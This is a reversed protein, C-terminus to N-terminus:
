SCFYKLVPLKGFKKAIFLPILFGLLTIAFIVEPLPRILKVPLYTVNTILDYVAFVIVLHATMVFLSKQGCYKMLEFIKGGVNSMFVSFKMILLTGSIGGLYLLFLDGYNRIYMSIKGNLFFVITFINLLILCHLLTMREVVNYKRILVGALLFGQVTLSVDLSLPLFFIKGILYGLHTLAVIILLFIEDHVKAFRNYFNLYILEAFFTGTSVM